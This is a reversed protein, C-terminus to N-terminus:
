GGPADDYFEGQDKINLGNWFARADLEKAGAPKLRTVLLPSDGTGVLLAERQKDFLFKGPQPLSASPAGALAMSTMVVRGRASFTFSGPWPDFARFRNFIERGPARWRIRGDEKNIKRCLTVRSEDQPIGAFAPDMLLHLAEPLLAAGAAFLRETLRGATEGTDIAMSKQLIVAGADLKRVTFLLTVGTTTLGDLLAAPVPTAGRYAPLLSPHINITARGPVALFSESLIQGFAATICVDPRWVKLQDIFEPSSVREPQLVAMAHSKAYAALPPDTLLNKRGSPRAPQSIVGVLDITGAAALNRLSELPAIVEEPSGLFVIRM